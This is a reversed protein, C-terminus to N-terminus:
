TGQETKEQEEKEKLRAERKEKKELLKSLGKAKNFVGGTGAGCAECTPTKRFRKLACAECYYHGCKTVIPFKYDEKCIICKFPIKELLEVEEKTLGEEQDEKDVAGIRSSVVKGGIEKKGAAFKDWESDLQWGAKYDERAHLFKCSDGFGCFGTQKYDKCVDPAFDTYNTMRVNSAAAKMPGIKGGGEPNKQIFASYNSQGKYTAEEAVAVTGVRLPNPAEAPAQQRRTNGLLQASSLDAHKDSEVWNSQKTADNSDQITRSRDAAYTSVGEISLGPRAGSTATVAGTNKKRRKVQRQGQEDESSYDESDSDSAPPPTAARKRAGKKPGRKKFLVEEDADAAVTAM